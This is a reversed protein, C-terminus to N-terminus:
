KALGRLWGAVYCQHANPVSKFEEDHVSVIVAPGVYFFPWLNENPELGALLGEENVLMELGVERLQAPAAPEIYGGVLEQLGHLRETVTEGTIEKLTIDGKKTGIYVVKM